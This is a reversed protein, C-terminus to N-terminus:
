RIPGGAGGPPNMRKNANEVANGKDQGPYSVMLLYDDNPTPQNMIAVYRKQNNPKTKANEKEDHDAKFMEKYFSRGASLIACGLDSTGTNDRETGVCSPDVIYEQDNALALPATTISFFPRGLAKELRWIPNGKLIHTAFVSPLYILAHQGAAESKTVADILESQTDTNSAVRVVNTGAPVAIEPMQQEVIVTEFHFGDKEGAQLFGQLIERHFAPEMPTGFVITKAERIPEYFRRFIVAGIEQPQDFFSPTMVVPPVPKVGFKLVFLMGATLVLMMAPIYLRLFWKQLTAKTSDTM